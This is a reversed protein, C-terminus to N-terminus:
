YTHVFIRSLEFGTWNLEMWNNLDTWNLWIWELNGDRFNKKKIWFWEHSVCLDLSISIFNSSFQQREKHTQTWRRSSSYQWCLFDTYFLCALHQAWRFDITTWQVSLMEIIWTNIKKKKALACHVCVRRQCLTFVRKRIAWNPNIPWLGWLWISLKAEDVGFTHTRFALSIKECANETSNCINALKRRLWDRIAHRISMFSILSNFVLFFPWNFVYLLISDSCFTENFSTTNFNFSLM